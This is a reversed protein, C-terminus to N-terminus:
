VVSRLRVWAYSIVTLALVTVYLGDITAKIPTGVTTSGMGFHYTTSATDFFVVTQGMIPIAFRISTTGTADMEAMLTRIDYIYSFPTTSALTFNIEIGSASLIQANVWSSFAECPDAGLFSCNMNFLEDTSITPDNGSAGLRAFTSYTKGLGSPYMLVNQIYGYWNNSGQITQNIYTLYITGSVGRPYITVWITNGTSLTVNNNLTFTTTTGNNYTGSACTADSPIVGDVAMSSSAFIYSSTGNQTIEIDIVGGGSGGSRCLAIEIQNILASTTATYAINATQGSTVGVMTYDTGSVPVPIATTNGAVQYDAFVSSASFVFGLIAILLTYKKSHPSRSM